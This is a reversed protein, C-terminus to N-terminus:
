KLLCEGEEYEGQVEVYIRTPIDFEGRNERGEGRGINDVQGIDIAGDKNWFQAEIEHAPEVIRRNWLNQRLKPLSM